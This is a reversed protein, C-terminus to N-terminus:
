VCAHSLPQKILFADQQNLEVDKREYPVNSLPTLKNIPTWYKRKLDLSAIDNLPLQWDDLGGYIIMHDNIVCAIHNRRPVPFYLHFHKQGHKTNLHKQKIDTFDIAEYVGKDIDFLCIDGICNRLTRAQVTKKKRAPKEEKKKPEEVKMFSFMPKIQLTGRRQHSPEPEQLDAVSVNPSFTVKKETVERSKSEVSNITKNKAPSMIGVIKKKKDADDGSEDSSQYTMM